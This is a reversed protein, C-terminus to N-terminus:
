AEYLEDDYGYADSGDAAGGLVEGMEEEIRDPDEGAELRRIATETEPDLEVGTEKMMHRMLRGMERPDNEDIQDAHRELKAMARELRVPDVDPAGPNEDGRTASKQVAFGSMRRQLRKKGCKPCTPKKGSDASRYFFQFVKRCRDCAFEYIPM